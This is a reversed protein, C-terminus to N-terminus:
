EVPVFTLVDQRGVGKKPLKLSGVAGVKVDLSFIVSFSTKTLDVKTPLMLQGTTVKPSTGVPQVKVVVVGNDGSEVSLIKVARLKQELASKDMQGGEISCLLLVAPFSLAFLMVAIAKGM